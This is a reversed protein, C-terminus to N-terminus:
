QREDWIVAKIHLNRKSFAATSPLEILPM